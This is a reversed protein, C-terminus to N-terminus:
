RGNTCSCCFMKQRSSTAGSSGLGGGMMSPPFSARGHVSALISASRLSGRRNSGGSSPPSSPRGGQLSEVEEQLRRLVYVLAEPNQFVRTAM